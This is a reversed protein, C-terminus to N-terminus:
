HEVKREKLSGTIRAARLRQQAQRKTGLYRGDIALPRANSRCGGHMLPRGLQQSDARVQSHTALNSGCGRSM